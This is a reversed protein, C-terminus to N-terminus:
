YAQPESVITASATAPTARSPTNTLCSVRAASGIMGSLSKRERTNLM